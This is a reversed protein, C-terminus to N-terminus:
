KLYEVDIATTATAAIAKFNNALANGSYAICQGATLQKGTGTATTTPTTSGDVSFNIASAAGNRVCVDFYTTGSPVTLTAVAGTTVALQSQMAGASQYQYPAVIFGGTPGCQVFGLQGNTLTPPNTNYICGNLYVGAPPPMTFTQALAATALGLYVLIAACLKRM